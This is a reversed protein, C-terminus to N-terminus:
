DIPAVAGVQGAVVQWAGGNERAWVRTYFYLGSVLVGGVEVALRARLAVIRVDAGVSRMRLEEPEHVRFRVAGSAHAELDQAKTGLQGDPGAFLLVESILRDLAGTDASLQASRLRSELVIIEDDVDGVVAARLAGDDAPQSVVRASCDVAGASRRKRTRM